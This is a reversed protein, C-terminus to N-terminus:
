AETVTEDGFTVMKNNASADPFATFEVGIIRDTDTDYKFKYKPMPLAKPLTIVLDTLSPDLPEIKLKKAYQLLDAGANADLEVKSKGSTTNTTITATPTTKFITKLDYEAIPVVTTIAVAKKLLKVITDGTQDTKVERTMMELNFEVGGITTEIVLPETGGVDFTVKCAGAVIKEFNQAM